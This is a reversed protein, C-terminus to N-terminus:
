NESYVEILVKIFNDIYKEKIKDFKTKIREKIGARNLKLDERNLLSHEKTYYFNENETFEFGNNELKTKLENSKILEKKNFIIEISICDNHGESFNIFKLFINYNNDEGKLKNNVAEPLNNPLYYIYNSKYGGEIMEINDQEELFEKLINFTYEKNNINRIILDIAQKNEFYIKRCLDNIEYEQKMINREILEKYQKIFFKIDDNLQNRDLIKNIVESVQLYNMSIYDHKYKTKAQVYPALYIFLKRYDSYEKNEEIKNKYKELQNSHEGTWIKNEIVCIFKNSNSIIKIDINEDERLVEADNLDFLMIDLVSIDFDETSKLQSLAEILFEKLFSDKLNHIEYPSMLWSLFNSHQLEKNSIQLVEFINFYKSKLNLNYFDDSLILRELNKIDNTHNM